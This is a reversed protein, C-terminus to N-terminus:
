INERIEALLLKGRESLYYQQKPNNVVEPDTMCIIGTELLPNILKNRFKTRDKWGLETMIQKISKPQICFDLIEEVQHWGPALKTGVQHWSLALKTGVQHWSLAQKTGTQDGSDFFNQQFQQQVQQEYEKKIFQVQFQLGTEKWRFEIEPYNKLDEAILKLGNGWQDIIGLKKFVPAIIRNRIDSQGAEMDDFNISPLLLGPSTVELMDEYIAIRIDKGSLSYDRHVVANRIVERIAIVPYEWRSETYIGRVISGKNIHKLIFDYAAEPQLAISGELSKQDIFEHPTKGKFRACQIRAYPFLEDKVQGESLLVFANTPFLRAQEERILGLKQITKDSLEEGTRERFFLRFAEINLDSLFKSYVPESDFSINQKQRELEKIIAEDAFRNTSGVRIVTGDKRGKAKLYYPLNSGRHILVRIINHNDLSHFSIEPVIVPSCNDHIINSIKEEISLLDRENLGTIERPENKIGFFLEGGADNAFAVVTRAIDSASPLKEKFELRRGEPQKILEKIKM